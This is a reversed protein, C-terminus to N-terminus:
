TSCETQQKLGSIMDKLESFNENVKGKIIKKGRNVKRWDDSCTPGRPLYMSTSEIDKVNERM